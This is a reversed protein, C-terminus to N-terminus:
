FIIEGVINLCPFEYTDLYYCYCTISFIVKETLATSNHRVYKYLEHRVAVRALNETSINAARVISLDGPDLQPYALFVFNSIALGLAADGVFELRQYSASKVYSPHTLAKEILTKDTFEYNLINEVARISARMEINDQSSM